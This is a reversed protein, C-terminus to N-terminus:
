FGDTVTADGGCEATGHITVDVVGPAHAPTEFVIVTGTHTLFDSAPVLIGGITVGTADTFCAGTITVETGGDEPGFGADRDADDAVATSTCEGRGAPDGPHRVYVDVLGPAHAPTTVTIQTDTEVEFSAALTEGVPVGTADTFGEGTITVVT